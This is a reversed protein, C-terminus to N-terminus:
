SKHFTRIGMQLSLSAMGDIWFEVIIKLFQMALFFFGGINGECNQVLGEIGLEDRTGHGIM